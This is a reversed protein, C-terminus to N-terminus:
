PKAKPQLAQKYLSSSPQVSVSGSLKLRAMTNQAREKTRFPGTVLAFEAEDKGETFVPVVRASVLWEKDKMAARAQKLSAYTGHQLVYSDDPLGKLWSRDQVAGEPLETIVKEPKAPAPPEVSVVQPAPPAPTPVPEVVAPTPTPAGSVPTPVEGQVITPGGTAGAPKEAPLEIKAKPKVKPEYTKSDFLKNLDTVFQNTLEPHLMAAVGVSIALLGSVVLVWPWLARAQAPKKDTTKAKQVSKNATPKGTKTDSKEQSAKVVQKAADKSLRNFFQVAAEETGNKRAQQITSLKQEPTPMELVWSVFQKGQNCISTEPNADSTFMLVTSIGAGPFQHVLRTLLEIEYSGLANADHVVWVSEPPKDKRTQTAVDLSLSSLLKNFRELMVESDPPMFVEVPTNVLNQKLRRIFAAGFHDLLEGSPSVLVLSKGEKSVATLCSDMQLRDAVRFFFEAGASQSDGFQNM